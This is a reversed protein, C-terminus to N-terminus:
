PASAAAGTKLTREFLKFIRRYEDTWSERMQFGHREAPYIAVEWNEKGLEILRQTLLVTDYFLVNDDVMGHAILLDGQLGEAFNIPSSRRYALTDDQPQNLIGATYGHNYNSWDTVPRLAAGARFVGPTTFMGMLTIFGGYSGGYIGIRASDVGLNAVLWRAGDVQDTLDKGGMHRYIATRWDRGHGASGRYDMDLVTYGRSALFHHFLYERSYSSWWHHVNQLYGAGHVFIVAPREGDRGANATPRYLRAPVEIGDRAPIMVIEPVIWRGRRWEETTSETVQRMSRGPRNEQFFLEEPHNATSHEVALWRGDPSVTAEQRGVPTTVRTLPGGGVPMTYFHVEAFGDRNAELYWTSGDRSLEASLVEWEGRTLANPTGGAAPVTYLHAWGTAESGFYVTEGDPLFGATFSLPGGVWASDRLHDVVRTELSPLDVVAYWRHERDRSTVRVLAHRSNSSVELGIIDREGEGVSDAVFTVNGTSVELVAVRSSGQHDGVTTRGREVDVYGDATIWVPMQTQRADRAPQNVTLLVWAGDPTPQLRFVSKGEGPYFPRPLSTDPPSERNWPQSKFEESGIFRFLARQRDALAKRQGEPAAEERPPNGSRIDTLQTLSGDTLSLRFINGDRAFLVSREDDSWRAGDEGGRTRTLYRERGNEWLVIDGGVGYLARRGDRTWEGSGAVISDARAADVREPEGGGPRARYPVAATDVGPRKWRFYLYDGEPSWRFGSPTSGLLDPGRMINEISLDFEQAALAAPVAPVAAWLLALAAGLRVRALHTASM